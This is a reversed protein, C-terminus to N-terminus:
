RGHRRRKIEIRVVDNDTFGSPAEGVYSLDYIGPRLRAPLLLRNFVTITQGQPIRAATRKLLTRDGKPDVLVWTLGFGRAPDGCNTASSETEIMEGPTATEPSRVIEVSVCQHARAAAAIGPLLALLVPAARKVSDIRLM